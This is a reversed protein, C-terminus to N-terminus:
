PTVGAEVDSLWKGQEELIKFELDARVKNFSATSMAAVATYQFGQFPIRQQQCFDRVSEVNKMKDDTFIIKHPKWKLSRLFVNLVKGKPVKCAFLVGHKFIPTRNDHALSRLSPFKIYKKIPFSASFDIREQTLEQLRLDEMDKIPGWDGADANSLGIVKAHKQQILAILDLVKPDVIQTHFNRRLISWIRYYEEKSHRAKIDDEYAKVNHVFPAQFVQNKSVILVDDLDFIFLTGNDAQEAAQFIPDLNPTVIIPSAEALASVCLFLWLGLIGLKM